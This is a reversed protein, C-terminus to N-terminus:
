YAIQTIDECGAPIVCPRAEGITPMCNIYAPCGAGKNTTTAKKILDSLEEKIEKSTTATVTTTPTTSVSGATSSAKDLLDKVFSNNASSSAVNFRDEAEKLSKDIDESIKKFTDDTQNQKTEFVKKLSALWLFFIVAIIVIIGIKLLLAKKYGQQEPNM